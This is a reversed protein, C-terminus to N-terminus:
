NVVFPELRTWSGRVIFLGQDYCHGFVRRILVKRNPPQNPNALQICDRHEGEHHNGDHSLLDVAELWIATSQQLFVHDNASKASMSNAIVFSRARVEATLHRNFHYVRCGQVVAFTNERVRVGVGLHRYTENRMWTNGDAFNVAGRFGTLTCNHLRLGRVKKAYVATDDSSLAFDVGDFVIHGVNDLRLADVTAGPAGLVLIPQAASEDFAGYLNGFATYAVGPRLQIVRRGSAKLALGLEAGNSPLHTPSRDRPSALCTVNVSAIAVDSRGDVRKIVVEHTTPGGMVERSCRGGLLGPAAMEVFAPAAELSDIFPPLGGEFLHDTDIAFLWDGPECFQHLLQADVDQDLNVRRLPAPAPDIQLYVEAGSASVGAENIARVVIPPLLARSANPRFTVRSGIQGEMPVDASTTYRAVQGDFCDAFDVEIPSGVHGLVHGIYPAQAFWPRPGNAGLKTVSLAYIELRRDSGDGSAPINRLQWTIQLFATGSPSVGSEPLITQSVGEYESGSQRVMGTAVSSTYVTVLSTSGDAALLEAKMSCAIWGSGRVASDIIIEYMSSATANVRFHLEPYGEGPSGFM